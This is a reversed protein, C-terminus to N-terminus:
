ESHAEPSNFAHDKVVECVQIRFTSYFKARGLRQAELHEPHRRWAEHSEGDAFEVISVREGDAATYGKISVFGPMGRALEEIRPAYLEYEDIYEPRLQSRFITIIM